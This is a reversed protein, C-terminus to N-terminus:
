LSQRQRAAEYLVVALAAAVNLSEVPARMPIRITERAARTESEDLGSGESGLIVASPRTWDVETHTRTAGLSTGFTQIGRDACWGLVEGFDAGTWLPLRFTSGMAGRLAKPSFLDATQRTAVVGSAGAAEAVRLMAGANSPNNVRHLVVVLPQGQAASEFARRDAAPRRAVCVVGQPTKTDSLHEIVDRSVAAPKEARASLTRVLEAARENRIFDDTFLVANVALGARAVEECLRLGEAFILGPAKGERTQRALRVLSNQRSTIRGGDQRRTDDTM